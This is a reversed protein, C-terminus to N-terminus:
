IVGIIVVGVSFPPLLRVVRLVTALLLVMTSRVFRVRCKKFFESGCFRFGGRKLKEHVM